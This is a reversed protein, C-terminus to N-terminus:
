APRRRAIIRRESLARNGAADRAEVSLAVRPRRGDALAARLRRVAKRRLRIRVRTPTDAALSRTVDPLALRGLRSRLVVTCPEGACGVTAVLARTKLLRQFMKATVSLALTSDSASPTSPPDAPPPAPPQPDPQPDPQPEPPLNATECGILTDVDRDAVATDADPGCDVSDSQGDRVAVADAGGRAVIEDAGQGGDIANAGDSGVIRDGLASGVVAELGTLEDGSGVEDRPIGAGRLLDVVVAKPAAAYSIVDVGTGGDFLDAVNPEAGAEIMDNGEDGYLSQGGTGGSLRDDGAGGSLTAATVATSLRDGYSSGVVRELSTLQDAGAGGTQQFQEGADLAVTVAGPAHAYSVTDYGASGDLQDTGLGGELVDVGGMGDLVDGGAGGTLRDDLAGDDLQLPMTAASGTGRGGRADIVDEGYHGYVTTRELGTAVIDADDDLLYASANIGDAGITFTDADATGEVVLQDYGTRLDLEIEIEAVELPDEPTEGPAFAAPNKIWIANGGTSYDTV